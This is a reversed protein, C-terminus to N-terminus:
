AGFRAGGRRASGTRAPLMRRLTGDRLVFHHGLAAAAHLGAVVLIANAALSHWGRLSRALGAGWAPLAFLGFVSDGQAFATLVGLGLTLVVLAYLLHHVIRAALAALRPGEVPLRRGRTARWGLRALIVGALAAGLLFHVSRYEIRPLGRPWFDITQGVGWLTAILLATVWHLLISTADYRAAAARASSLTTM